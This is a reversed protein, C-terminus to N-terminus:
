NELTEDLSTDEYDLIEHNETIQKYGTKSFKVTVFGTAINASRWKGSANTKGKWLLRGGEDLIEVLVQGVPNGAKDSVVGFVRGLGDNDTNATQALPTTDFYKKLSDEATKNEKSLVQLALLWTTEALQEIMANVTERAAKVDAKEGSQSALAQTYKTKLADVDAAWTSGKFQAPYAQIQDSWVGLINLFDGRKAKGVGDLGSPFFKKLEPPDKKKFAAIIFAHLVSANTKIEEIVTQVSDTSYAQDGLLTGKVSTTYTQVQNGFIDRLTKYINATDLRAFNNLTDTGFQIINERSARM